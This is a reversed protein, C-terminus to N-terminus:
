CKLRRPQPSLPRGRRSQTASARWQRLTFAKDLWGNRAATTKPGVTLLSTALDELTSHRRLTIGKRRECGGFGGPSPINACM